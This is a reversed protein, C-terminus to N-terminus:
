EDFKKGCYVCRESDAPIHKGCVPCVITDNMIEESGDTHTIVDEEGDFRAGCKPCEAMDSSIEAGCASCTLMVKKKPKMSEPRDIYAGCKRCNVEGPLVVSGCFTCRGYGQPYLRGAAEMKARTNNLRNRMITTLGLVLFFFVLIYLVCYGTGPLTYTKADGDFGFGTLTSYASSNYVLNGEADLPVICISYLKSDDLPLTVPGVVPDQDPVIEEKYTIAKFAIMEVEQYVVRFQTFGCEPSSTANVTHGSVTYEIGNRESLEESSYDNITAPGIAFAGIVLALVAFIAGFVAKTKASAGFLHPLMYVLVGVIVIVLINNAGGFTLLLIGLLAALVMAVLQGMTIPGLEKSLFSGNGNSYM